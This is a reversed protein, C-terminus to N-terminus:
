KKGSEHEKMIKMFPRGQTRAIDPLSFAEKVEEYNEYDITNRKRADPANPSYDAPVVVIRALFNEFIDVDPDLPFSAEAFITVDNVSFDYNIQLLGSDYFYNVPMLRWVDVTGGDDTEIVDWLLYVLVVDELFIEDEPPFPYYAIWDNSEDLTFSVEYMLGVGPPGQPGQPGPPGPPGVPGPLGEEGQCNWLLLSLAVWVFFNRCPQM